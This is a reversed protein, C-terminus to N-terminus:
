KRNEKFLKIIEADTLGARIAEELTEEDENPFQDEDIFSEEDIEDDIPIDSESDVGEDNVEEEVPTLTIRYRTSDITIEGSYIEEKDVQLEESDLPEAINELEESEETNVESDKNMEGKEFKEDELGERYIRNGKMGSEKLKLQKKATDLIVTWLATHMRADRDLDEEETKYYEEGILSALKNSFPYEEFIQNIITDEAIEILERYEPSKRYDPKEFSDVFDINDNM